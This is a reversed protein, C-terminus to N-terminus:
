SPNENPLLWWPNIPWKAKLWIQGPVARVTQWWCWQSFLQDGAIENVQVVSIKMGNISHNAASAALEDYLKTKKGLQSNCVTVWAAVPHGSHISPLAFCFIAHAKSTPQRSSFIKRSVPLRFDGPLTFKIKRAGTAKFTLNILFLQVVFERGCEPILAAPIAVTIFPQVIPPQENFLDTAVQRRRLGNVLNAYQM